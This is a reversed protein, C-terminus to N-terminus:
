AVGIGRLWGLVVECALGVNGIQCHNQAQEERAFIRGTVSRAHSLAQMTKEHMKIPIFHDEQSSLVLVDPTIREPHMNGRTMELMTTMADLPREIGTIYMSNEILWRQYLDKKMQKEMQKTSFNEFHLFVKM